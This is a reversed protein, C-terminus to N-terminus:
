AAYRGKERSVTSVEGVFLSGPPAQLFKEISKAWSQRCYSRKGSRLHGITAPSCGIAQALGRVKVDRFDMYRALTNADILRVDFRREIVIVASDGNKHSYVITEDRM